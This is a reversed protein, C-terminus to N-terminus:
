DREDTMNDSASRDREDTKIDPASRDREDTKIDPASRDREIMRVFGNKLQETVINDKLQAVEYATNTDDTQDFVNTGRGRGLGRDVEKVM